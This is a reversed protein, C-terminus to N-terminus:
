EVVLYEVEYVETDVPTGEFTITFGDADVATVRFDGAAQDEDCRQVFVFPAADKSKKFAVEITADAAPVADATVTLKGRADNSGATVALVPTTGYGTLTVDAAAIDPGAGDANIKSGVAM